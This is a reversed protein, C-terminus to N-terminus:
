SGFAGKTNRRRKAKLKKEYKANHADKSEAQGQCVIRYTRPVPKQIQLTKESVM